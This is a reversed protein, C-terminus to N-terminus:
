EARLDAQTLKMCKRAGLHRSSSRHSCSNHHILVAAVDCLFGWRVLLSNALHQAVDQGYIACAEASVSGQLKWTADSREKQLLQPDAALRAFALDALFVGKVGHRLFNEPRIDRCCAPNCRCIVTSGSIENCSM